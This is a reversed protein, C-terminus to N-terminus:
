RYLLLGWNEMAGARFDPISGQTMKLSPHISYFDYDTYDSMEQLLKQGVDFAYYSQNTSIAHERGVVEYLVSGDDAYKAVSEYDAVIVALLYTPMIPTIAYM